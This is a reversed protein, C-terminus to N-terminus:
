TLVVCDMSATELDIRCDVLINESDINYDVLANLDIDLAAKKWGRKPMLGLDQPMQDNDEM